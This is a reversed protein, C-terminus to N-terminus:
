AADIIAHNNKGIREILRKQKNHAPIHKASAHSRMTENVLDPFLLTLEDQATPSLATLSRETVLLSESPAGNAQVIEHDDFLMHFYSVHDQTETVYIGPLATLRIAPILVETEGFMRQAVRSRVLMRHQRSVQLPRNPLGLGLAGAEIRVPRLKENGAMQVSTVKRKGIWRLPKLGTETVIMDGPALTEIARPGNATDILTGNCFCVILSINDVIAGLSDDGGLETLRLTYQGANTFDINLSVQTFSNTTPLASMSAIVTGSADLIEIRFGDTGAQGLSATRLAADLTLTTQIPNNVTFSQEMITTQGSAGDMEAVRNSSGNGLYADETYSTELDNGSWNASGSNFTGNIILDPM